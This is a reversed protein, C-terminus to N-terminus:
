LRDRIEVLVDTQRDLKVGMSDLKGNMSDLKGNMSGLQGSMVGLTGRVADVKRNSEVVGTAVAHVQGRTANLILAIVGVLVGVVTGLTTLREGTDSWWGLLEGLIGLGATLFGLASIVYLLKQLRDLDVLSSATRAPM